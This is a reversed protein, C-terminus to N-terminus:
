HISLQLFLQRKETEEGHRGGHNHGDILEWAQSCGAKSAYEKGNQAANEPEKGRGKDRCLHSGYLSPAFASYKSPYSIGEVRFSKSINREKALPKFYCYAVDRHAVEDNAHKCIRETPANDVVIRCALKEADYNKEPHDVEELEVASLLRGSDSFDAKEEPHKNRAEKKENEGENIHSLPVMKIYFNGGMSEEGVEPFQASQRNKGGENQHVGSNLGASGMYVFHFIGAPIVGERHEHHKYHGYYHIRQASHAHSHRDGGFNQGHVRSHVLGQVCEYPMEVRVEGPNCAYKAHKHGKSNHCLYSRPDYAGGLTKFVASLVAKHGLPYVVFITVANGGM